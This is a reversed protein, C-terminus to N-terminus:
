YIHGAETEREVFDDLPKTSKEKLCKKMLGLRDPTVHFGMPMPEGFTEEWQPRLEELDEWTAMM